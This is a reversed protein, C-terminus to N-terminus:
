ANSPTNLEAQGSVKADQEQKQQQDLLQQKAQAEAEQMQLRQVEDGKMRTWVYDQAIVGVALRICDVMRDEVWENEEYPILLWQAPMSQSCSEFELKHTPDHLVLVFSIFTDKEMAKVSTSESATANYGHRPVRCPQIAMFVPCTSANTNPNKAEATHKEADYHTKVLHEINAKALKVAQEYGECANLQRDEPAIDDSPNTTGAGQHVIVDGGDTQEMVKSFARHVIAELGVYGVMDHALWIEVVEHEAIPPAIVDLVTTMSSLTLSKLDNGIKGINEANVFGKVREELSKTTQSEMTAKVSHQVATQTTKVAESATSWLSGLWSARTDVQAQAAQQQQHQAPQQQQQQLYRSPLAASGDYMSPKGQSGPPSIVKSDATAAPTTASSASQTIEDLFDLVSQEDQAGSTGAGATTKDLSATTGDGPNTSTSSTSPADTPANDLSDLFQLVDDKSSSM